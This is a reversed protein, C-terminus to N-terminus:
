RWEAPLVKVVVRQVDYEDREIYAARGSRSVADPVPQDELTGIYRGDAASLDIRGPEYEKERARHVWIRGLPDTRMGFLVPVTEAFEMNALNERIEAEPLRGGISTSRRGGEDVVRVIGVGRELQRRRQERAREKDKETVKRPRFPREIVRQVKGDPGAIHVRYGAEYTFALGGDPLPGWRLQPTFVPPGTFAVRMEGVSGSRTFRAVPAPVAALRVPAADDAGPRIWLVPLSDYPQPGEPTVRLGAPEVLVGSRPHSQVSRFIMASGQEYPVTRELAGDPRFITYNRHAADAVIVRGDPEVALGNPAAFEGPGGGQKGLQRVFKGQADFVLVRHNGRDLVYLNDRADFAVQAVGGFTEWDAGELAGIAFLTQPEGQLMRDRAAIHVVQQGFAAAPVVLTLITLSTLRIRHM